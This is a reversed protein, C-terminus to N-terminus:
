EIERKIELRYTLLSQKAQHRHSHPSLLFSGVFRGFELIYPSYDHSNFSFRRV